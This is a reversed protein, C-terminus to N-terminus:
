NLRKLSEKSLGSYDLHFSKVEHIIKHGALAAEIFKKSDELFDDITPGTIKYKGSKEMHYALGVDDTEKFERDGICLCFSVAGAATELFKWNYATM